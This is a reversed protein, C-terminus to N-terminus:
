QHDHPATLPFEDVFEQLEQKAPAVDSERFRQIQERQNADRILIECLSDFCERLSAFGRGAFVHGFELGKPGLDHRSKTWTYPYEKFGNNYIGLWATQNLGTIQFVSESVREVTFERGKYEYLRTITGAPEEGPPKLPFEDVFEQLVQCAPDSGTERFNQIRETRGADRIVAEALSNFCERLSVFGEGAFIDGFELGEPGLDYRSKTWTYPKKESGKNYIGLWATQNLGTVQFVSESIHEVTFEHGDSRYIRPSIRPPKDDPPKQLFASVFELLERKALGFGTDRFKQIREKERADRILAECLSNFGANLSAFGGGALVSGFELGEPGLDYRSKTWTYPRERSGKNNIGLWGTQGLGTVQVVAESVREVAFECGDYHYTLPWTDAPPQGPMEINMPSEGAGPKRGWKIKPLKAM